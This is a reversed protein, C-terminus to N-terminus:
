SQGALSAQVGETFQQVTKGLADALMRTVQVNHALLAIIFDHPSEGILTVMMESAAQRNDEHILKTLGLIDSALNKQDTSLEENGM